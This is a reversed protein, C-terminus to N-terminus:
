LDLRREGSCRSKEDRKKRQPTNVGSNQLKVAHAGRALTLIEPLKGRHCIGLVHPCTRSMWGNAQNMRFARASANRKASPKMRKACRTGRNGAGDPKGVACFDLPGDASADPVGAASAATDASFTRAANEDGALAGATNCGSSGAPLGSTALDEYEETSANFGFNPDQHTKIKEVVIAGETGCNLV